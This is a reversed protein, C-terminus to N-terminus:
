PLSGVSHQPTFYQAIVGGFIMLMLAPLMFLAMPLLMKTPMLNALEEARMLRMNRAEEALQELVEALNSGLREAQIIARVTSSLPKVQVRMAMSRLADARSRGLRIEVLAAKIEEGLPGGAVEQGQVMASNFALGAEVTSSLMDLFNPLAKTIALKRKKIARKLQSFPLYAGAFTAFACGFITLLDFEGMNIIYLVGVLLGVLCFAVSRLVLQAPTTRYWGAEELQRRLRAGQVQGFVRSFREAFTNNDTFELREIQELRKAAESKAPLLTFALLGVPMAFGAGILLITPDIDAM